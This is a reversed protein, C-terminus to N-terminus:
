PPYLQIRIKGIKKDLPLNLLGFFGSIFEPNKPAGAMNTIGSILGLPHGCARVV